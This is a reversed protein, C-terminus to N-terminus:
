VKILSIIIQTLGTFLFALGNLTNMVFFIVIYAQFTRDISLKNAHKLLVVRSVVPIKNHYYIVPYFLAFLGAYCCLIAIGAHPSRYDIDKGLYNTLWIGASVQIFHYLFLITFVSPKHPVQLRPIVLALCLGGAFLYIGSNLFLQAILLLLLFGKAVDAFYIHRYSKNDVLM